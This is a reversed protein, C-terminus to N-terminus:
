PGGKRSTDQVRAPAASAAGAGNLTFALVEDSRPSNIQYNGGAAVAVYQKGNVAYSIPPANVGGSAAYSWLQAGSKADYALLQKDATGTFVLGGATALAGGIMPDAVHKQWVVKGTSVDVASFLGYQPEGSGIFAGGMWMAPKQLTDGPQLVYMMPQHLGLVYMYGTQPSYATPSWESGGNAGPLMRTGAPTPEAFMNTQPVFADSRRIPKGTARDLVYVWGTKGAQGVAKVSQGSSGKTDFLVVPSTADLDWVDHPIEQLHWKYKGTKLDVAVISNAYLNDGPRQSGDLDPSPNGVAFIVLGLDRDVAVAQWMGGGGTKWADPYKASDARERSRDRHVRTGFADTTSWKGWWGGEEPSPITYFRWVQQGTVADYATVHGRIGYEGGSVGVLVKGDVAVVAGNLTYGEHPAGVKVEWAKVGTGADLAVLKGDLQGMYVRGGYLAIGRNVPGCCHVTTDLQAAYEWKKQGTAADLAVVHNLPTSIYMTGNVVIPSAEFARPIGTKYKWALTLGRVNSASLQTLPSFRQNTYDRGYSPWNASDALAVRMASDAQANSMGTARSGAPQGTNQNGERGKCGAAAFGAM